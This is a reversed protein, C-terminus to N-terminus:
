TVLHVLLSYGHPPLIPTAARVSTIIPYYYRFSLRLSILLSLHIQRHSLRRRMCLFTIRYILSLLTHTTCACRGSSGRPPLLCYYPLLLVLLLITTVSVLLSTTTTFKRVLSTVDSAACRLGHVRVGDM